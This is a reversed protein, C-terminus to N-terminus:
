QARAPFFALKLYAEAPCAVSNFVQQFCEQAKEPHHSEEYAIGLDIELGPNQPSDALAEEFLRTADDYRQNDLYLGGLMERLGPLGPNLAYANEYDKIAAATQGLDSELDACHLVVDVNSPELDMARRLTKLAETKRGLDRYTDALLAFTDVSPPSKAAAEQLIPLRTRLIVDNAPPLRDSRAVEQYLRALDLWSSASVCSGAAKLIDEIHLVGGALDDEDAAIELIVQMAVSQSPDRTLAHTSLRLADDNQGRLRQTYGLAVEIAVSDPHSAAAAQLQALAQDLQGSELLLNALKIKADTFTPDLAVIQRFLDLAQQQEGLPMEPLLMAQAYLANAQSRAEAVPSLHGNSLRDQADTLHVVPSPVAEPPLISSAPSIEARVSALSCSAACFIIRWTCSFGAKERLVAHCVRTLRAAFSNGLALRHPKKPCGGPM